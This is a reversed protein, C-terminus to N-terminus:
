EIIETKLLEEDNIIKVPVEKMNLSIAKSLRHVGDLVIYKDNEKIVILDEIKILEPDLLFPKMNYLFTNWYTHRNTSSAKLDYVNFFFFKSNMQGAHAITTYIQFLQNGLGGQLKCSIM